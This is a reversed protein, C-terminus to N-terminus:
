GLREDIAATVEDVSITGLCWRDATRRCKREYHCDCSAYRAISIDRHDWPGNRDPNTPGFLSVAPVGLACAIHLPGTDGSVILSARRSLALLDRLGTPPAPQAAGDSNSVVADALGSEGPGWLVISALGHRSRLTKALSGLRDPPWQKNPWAAGPNILAFKSRGALFADVVQSTSEDIPFELASSTAGLSSALRLNKHIVHHKEDIPVRETYFMAAQPERLGARDFGVIRAAGSLRALAASKILGQFDAAVDYRRRRLERRVALWGSMGRKELVVLSSLVPVLSLFEKHPADVLWDIAANPYARRLAAAAPLTHVLDGLSGLRVILLRNIDSM